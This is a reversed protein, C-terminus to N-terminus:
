LATLARAKDVIESPTMKPEAAPRAGNRLNEQPRRRLTRDDDDDDDGKAGDDASPFTTLLEDADAELEELSAGVLRKAQAPTLGKSAAVELRMARQEAEAARDEAAKQAAQLRELESKDKDELEALKRAADANAKARAENERSLKRWKELEYRLDKEGEPPSDGQPDDGPDDTRPNEQTMLTM